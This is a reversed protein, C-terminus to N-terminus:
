PSHERRREGERELVSSVARALRRPRPYISSTHTVAADAATTQTTEVGMTRRGRDGREKRGETQCARQLEHWFSRHSISLCLIAVSPRTYPAAATKTLRPPSFSLLFSAPSFNEWRRDLLPARAHRRRLTNHGQLTWNLSPPLSPRGRWNIVAVSIGDDLLSQRRNNSRAAHRANEVPRLEDLLLFCYLVLQSFVRARDAGVM